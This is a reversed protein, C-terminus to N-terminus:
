NTKLEARITFRAHGSITCTFLTLDYMGATMSDIATPELTEFEAVAYRFVNGDIDTFVIEDDLSLDTLSGFHSDYNHGAIVLDGTYASGSYRCPANKLNDYSWDGIVPLQLELSPIELIGICDFGYAEATPMEMEPVLVYDPIEVEELAPEASPEPAPIQPSQTEIAPALEVLMAASTDSAKQATFANYVTLGVAASLLLLGLSITVAGKKRKKNNAM